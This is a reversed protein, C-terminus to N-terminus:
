FIEKGKEQILLTEPIAGNSLVMSINLCTSRTPAVVVVRGFKKEEMEYRWSCANQDRLIGKGVRAGNASALIRIYESKAM